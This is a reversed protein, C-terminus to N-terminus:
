DIGLEFAPSVNKLMKKGDRLFVEYALRDDSRMEKIEAGILYKETSVHIGVKEYRRGIVRMMVKRGPLDIEVNLERDQGVLYKEKIRITSVVFGLGTDSMDTTEGSLFLEECSATLNATNKEPTFCVKIPVQYKRRVSARREVLTRSFLSAIERIM